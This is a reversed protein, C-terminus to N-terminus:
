IPSSFCVNCIYVFFFFVGVYVSTEFFLIFFAQFEYLKLPFIHLFDNSINLVLPTEGYETNYLKEAVKRNVTIYKSQTKTYYDQSM